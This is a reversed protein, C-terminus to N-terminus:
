SRETSPAPVQFNRWVGVDQDRCVRTAASWTHESNFYMIDCPESAFRCPVDFVLEASLVKSPDDNDENQYKM